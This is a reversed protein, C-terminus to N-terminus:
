AAGGAVKHILDMWNTDSLWTKRSLHSTWWLLQRDAVVEHINIGYAEGDYDPACNFHEARWQARRPPLGHLSGDDNALDYNSSERQARDLDDADVYLYGDRGAIAAHCHDCTWNIRHPHEVM